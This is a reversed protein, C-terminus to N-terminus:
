SVAIDVIARLLSLLRLRLGLPQLGMEQRLLTLADADSMSRLIGALLSMARGDMSHERLPAALKALGEDKLSCLSSTVEESSMLPGVLGCEPGRPRGGALATPGALPPRSGQAVLAESASCGIASALSGASPRAGPSAATAVTSPSGVAHSAHATSSAESARAGDAGCSLLDRSVGAGREPLTCAGFGPSCDGATAGAGVASDSSCAAYPSGSTHGAIDSARQPRPQSAVGSDSTGSHKVIGAAGTVPPASDRPREPAAIRCHPASRMLEAVIKPVEADLVAEIAAAPDDPSPPAAEGGPMAAGGAVPVCLEYYLKSGTMIGLWGDPRYRREVLIPVMPKRLQAAYEAELRCNASNKYGPGLTYVIAAADEVALAMAELTSGSMEAVDLWIRFGAARLRAALALVTPQYVWAYSLMVHKGAPSPVSQPVSLSLSPPASVLTVPAPPAPEAGAGSLPADASAAGVQQGMAHELSGVVRAAACSSSTSSVTAVGLLGAIAKLKAADSAPLRRKSPSGEAAPLAAFGRVAALLPEHALLSAHSAADLAMQLLCELCDHCCRRADSEDFFRVLKGSGALQREASAPMVPVGADASAADSPLLAFSARASELVRAFLSLGDAEVVESCHVPSAALQRLARTAENALGYNFDGDLAAALRRVVLSVANTDSLLRLVAPDEDSGLLSVIGMTAREVAYPTPPTAFTFAAVRISLAGGTSGVATPPRSESIGGSDGRGDDAADASAARNAKRCASAVAALVADTGVDLLVPRASTSQCIYSLTMVARQQAQGAATGAVSVLARLLNVRRVVLHHRSHFDGRTILLNGLATLADSVLEPPALGASSCIIGELVDVAGCALGRARGSEAAFFINALAYCAARSVESDAGESVVQLLAEVVGQSVALETRPDHPVSPWRLLWSLLWTAIEHLCGLAPNLLMTTAFGLMGLSVASRKAAVNRLDEPVASSPGDMVLATALELVSRAVVPNVLAEDAAAGALVRLRAAVAELVGCSLAQERAECDVLGTSTRDFKLGNVLTQCLSRAIASVEALDKSSQLLEVGATFDHAKAAMTLKDSSLYFHGAV